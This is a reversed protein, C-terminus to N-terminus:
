AIRRMDEHDSDRVKNELEALLKESIRSINFPDGRGRLAQHWLKRAVAHYLILARTNKGSAKLGELGIYFEALAITLKQNWGVQNATAILKHRATMIQEWTLHEDTIANPSAKTAKMPQLSVPGTGTGLLNFVNDAATLTTKSAENCGETTFYWLEVYEINETRRIAFECPHHPIQSSITADQDFDVFTAKKRPPSRPEENAPPTLPRPPERPPEPIPDELLAQISARLRTDAEEETCQHREM